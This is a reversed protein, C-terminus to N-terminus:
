LFAVVYVLHYSICTRHSYVLATTQTIMEPTDLTVSVPTAMKRMLVTHTLCATMIEVLVSTWQYGQLSQAHRTIVYICVLLLSVQVLSGMEKIAMVACVSSAEWHTRVSQTSDM